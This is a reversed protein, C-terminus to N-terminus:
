AVLVNVIRGREVNGKAAGSGMGREHKENM